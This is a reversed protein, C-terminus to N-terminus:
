KPPQRRFRGSLLRWLEGLEAVRLLWALLIYLGLGVVCLLAGRALVAWIETLPLYPLLLSRLVLGAGIAVGAALGLRLAADLMGPATDLM